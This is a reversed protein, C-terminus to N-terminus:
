RGGFRRNRNSYEKIAVDLDQKKFDPWLVDTFYLESYASQWMFFNSLRQEGSTRIIIDPDKIDRTYLNESVIDETIEDISINEEKVQKAIKQIASVLEQRGGYDLAIVFTLGDKDSTKQEVNIIKEQLSKSLLNRRGIVKIRINQKNFNKEFSDLYENLLTMLGNVEEKTRKWNETSFAYVTLYEIGIKNSYEVIKKLANAGERHGMITPLGRKKAWRGNGDM